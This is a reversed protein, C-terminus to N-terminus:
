HGVASAEEAELRCDVPQEEKLDTLSPTPQVLEAAVSVLAELLGLCHHGAQGEWHLHVEPAEARFNDLPAAVWCSTYCCLHVELDFAESHHAGLYGAEAPHNSHSSFPLDEQDELVESLHSHVVVELCHNDRSHDDSCCEM